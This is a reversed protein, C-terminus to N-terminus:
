FATGFGKDVDLRLGPLGALTHIAHLVGDPGKEDHFLEYLYRSGGKESFAEELFRMHPSSKLCDDKACNDKYYQVLTDIVNLHEATVDFGIDDANKRVRQHLEDVDLNEVAVYIPVEGDKQQYNM